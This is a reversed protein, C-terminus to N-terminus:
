SPRADSVILTDQLWGCAAVAVEIGGLPKCTSGPEFVWEKYLILNELTGVCIIKQMGRRKDISM